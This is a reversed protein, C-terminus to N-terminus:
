PKRFLMGYHYQGPFLDKEWILGADEALRRADFPSVRSEPMPGFPAGAPKWDAVVMRGGPKVMRACEKVMAERQKSLFLNNILLGLDVSGDPINVGHDREMDGWVPTINMVSEMKMMSEIGNLVSKLIDIAYVRGNPGVLKSAPFVYHGLTGCGFDAVTMADRIGASELLKFPDILEKGTPFYPM